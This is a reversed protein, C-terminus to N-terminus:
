KKISKLIAEIEMIHKGKKIGPAYIFGDIIILKDDEVELAYNVFPGGMFDSEMQWLGRTEFGNIGNIKVKKYIPTYNKEVLVYSGKKNGLVYNKTISDRTIIPDFTSGVYVYLYIFINISGVSKRKAVNYEINKRLWMFKDNKIVTQYNTPVIMKLNNKKILPLEKKSKKLKTQISKICNEKLKNFLLDKKSNIINVLEDSSKGSVKILLQPKAFIDNEIVIENEDHKNQIILINKNTKLLKSFNKHNVNSIKFVNEEQPLGLLKRNIAKKIAKGVEDNWLKNNVVIIVENRDGSSDPLIKNNQCSSVLLLLCIGSLFIYKKIKMLM